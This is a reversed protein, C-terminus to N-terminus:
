NLSDRNRRAGGLGDVSQGVKSANFHYKLM